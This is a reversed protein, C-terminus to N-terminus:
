AQVVTKPETMKWSSGPYCGRQPTWCAPRWSDAQWGVFTESARRNLPGRGPRLMQAIPQQVSTTLQTHLQRCGLHRVVIDDCKAGKGALRPQALAPSPGTACRAPLRSRPPAAAQPPASPSPPQPSARPLKPVRGVGGAERAAATNNGRCSKGPLRTLAAQLRGQASYKGSSSTTSIRPGRPLPCEMVGQCARALRRVRSCRRWGPPRTSDMGSSSTPATRASGGKHRQLWPQRM